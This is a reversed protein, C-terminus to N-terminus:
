DVFHNKDASDERVRAHRHSVDPRGLRARMAIYSMPGGMDRALCIDSM